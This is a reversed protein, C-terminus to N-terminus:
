RGPGGPSPADGSGARDRRSARAALYGDGTDIPFRITVTGGSATTEVPFGSSLFVNIMERNESLTQAVFREVGHVRAV